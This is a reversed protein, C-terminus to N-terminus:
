KRRARAATAAAGVVALVAVAALVYVWSPIVEVAVETVRTTVLTQVQTQVQTQVRTVESRLTQVITREAVVDPLGLSVVFGPLNTTPGWRTLPISIPVFLRIKGASDSAISPQVLMPGGVVISRIEEGTDADYI